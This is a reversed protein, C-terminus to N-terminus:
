VGALRAKKWFCAASKRPYVGIQDANM